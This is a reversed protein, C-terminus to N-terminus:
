ATLFLTMLQKDIYAASALVRFSITYYITEHQGNRSSTNIVCLYIMQVASLKRGCRRAHAFDIKTTKHKAVFQAGVVNIFEALCYLTEAGTLHACTDAVVDRSHVGCTTGHYLAYGFPVRGCITDAWSLRCDRKVNVCVRVSCLSVSRSLCINHQSIALPPLAITAYAHLIRQEIKPNFM